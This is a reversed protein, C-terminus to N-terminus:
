KRMTAKILPIVKTGILNISSMLQAHNLGANDM